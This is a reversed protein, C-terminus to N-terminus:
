FAGGIGVTSRWKKTPDNSFQEAGVAVFWGKETEVALRVAQVASLPRAVGTGAAKNNTYTLAPGASYQAHVAGFGTQAIRANVTGVVAVGTHGMGDSLSGLYYRPGFGVSVGADAGKWLQAAVGHTEDGSLRLGHGSVAVEMSGVSASSPGAQAAGMAAVGAVALTAQAALKSATLSNM